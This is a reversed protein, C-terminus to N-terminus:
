KIALLEVDFVLVSNPPIPGVGSSGYGLNAPIVLKRKGGVKMGAVGEEWGPIVRHAGIRFEFPERGPNRSSDFLFGNPLWGSYHVQVSDGNEAVDGTGVTLDQTYLGSASKTMKSLDVGLAPAYTNMAPDPNASIIQEPDGLCASTAAAAALMLGALWSRSLTHRLM